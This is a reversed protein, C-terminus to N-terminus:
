RGVAAVRRVLVAVRHRDPRDVLQIALAIVLIARFGSDLGNLAARIRDVVPGRKLAAHARISRDPCMPRLEADAVASLTDPM